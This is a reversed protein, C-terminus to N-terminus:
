KKVAHGQLNNNNNNDDDDDGGGGNRRLVPENKQYNDRYLFPAGGREHKLNWPIAKEKNPSSKETNNNNNSTVKM